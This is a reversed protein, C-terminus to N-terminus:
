RDADKPFALEAFGAIGPTSDRVVGAIPALVTKTGGPGRSLAAVWQSWGGWPRDGARGPADGM